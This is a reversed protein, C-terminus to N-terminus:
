SGLEDGDGTTTSKDASVHKQVVAIQYLATDRYPFLEGPPTAIGISYVAVGQRFRLGLFRRLTFRDLLMLWRILRRAMTRHWGLKAADLQGMWALDDGFVKQIMGAFESHWFERVHFPTSLAGGRYNPTSILLVADPTTVRHLEWLFADPDDVHEITEFSAVGTFAGSRFPLHQGDAVLYQPTAYNSAAQLVAAREVDAGVALSCGQDALYSTGYGTGCALDLVQGKIREGALAYRAAHLSFDYSERGYGEILPNFRESSSGVGPLSRAAPQQGHQVSTPEGASSSSADSM